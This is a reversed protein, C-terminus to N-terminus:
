NLLQDFASILQAGVVEPSFLREAERRCRHSLLTREDDRLQVLSNVASALADIDGPAVVIKVDAAVQEAAGVAPTVVVPVGLALAEAVTLGFPEYRSLQLLALSGAVEDFVEVRSRPGVMTTVSSDCNKLGHRYDSWLSPAGIVRLSLRNDIATIRHSLAVVDQLGKRVALRGVVVLHENTPDHRALEGVDICNSVVVIRTPDTGYDAVIEDAFSQSLALIGTARQADRRQRVVRLGLWTTVILRRLPGDSSLGLSSESKTWRREGAAHVSPHILVPIDSRRPVGFSEFTSFQYVVDYPSAEHLAALRRALRRRNVAAFGQMSIMKTLRSRSYWRGFAFNSHGVVYALGEHSGLGRPDDDERSAAVFCDINFGRGLLQQLLLGAVGPAGGAGPHPSPGVYAVRRQDFRLGPVCNTDRSELHRWRTLTLWWVHLLLGSVVVVWRVAFRPHRWIQEKRAVNIWTRVANALPTWRVSRDSRRQLPYRAFLLWDDYIFRARSWCSRVNFPRGPHTVRMAPEFNVPGVQDQVRWALDRDEHARRLLRDFGGVADLASRRYAVNCTLFSGGLHDEVSHEYLANYAPSTTDGTVGACAPNTALHELAAAVWGEDVVVDDDTFLVIEGTARAVGVNRAGAPGVGGSRVLTAEGLSSAEYPPRSGDDVVILEGEGALSALQPTLGDILRRLLEPRDRSAVVVSIRM